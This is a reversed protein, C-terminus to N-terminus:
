CERYMMDDINKMFSKKSKFAQITVFDLFSGLSIKVIKKPGISICSWYKVVISAYPVENRFQMFIKERVIEAIFFREPQESTIDRNRFPQTPVDIPEQRDIGSFSDLAVTGWGAVSPKGSCGDHLRKCQKLRIGVTLADLNHHEGVKRNSNDNVCNVPIQGVCANAATMDSQCADEAFIFGGKRLERVSGTTTEVGKKCLSAALSKSSQQFFLLFWIPISFPYGHHVDCTSIQLCLIHSTKFYRVKQHVKMLHYIHTEYFQHESIGKRPRSSVGAMAAGVYREHTGRWFTPIRWGCWNYNDLRIPCFVRKEREAKAPNGAVGSQILVSRQHFKRGCNRRRNCAREFCEVKFSSYGGSGQVSKVEERVEKEIERVRTAGFKLFFECRLTLMLLLLKLSNDSLTLVLILHYDTSATSLLTRTSSATNNKYGSFNSTTGGSRFSGGGRAVTDFGKNEEITIALIMAHNLSIRLKLEKSKLFREMRYIWGYADEGDFIPMKLKKFRYDNARFNTGTVTQQPILEDNVDPGSNKNRNIENVRYNNNTENFGSNTSQEHRQNSQEHRQNAELRMAALENELTTLRASSDGKYQNFELELDAAKVM